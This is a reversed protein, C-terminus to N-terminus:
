NIASSNISILLTNLSRKGYKECLEILSSTCMYVRYLKTQKNYTCKYLGSYVSTFVNCISYLYGTHVYKCLTQRRAADDIFIQQWVWYCYEIEM